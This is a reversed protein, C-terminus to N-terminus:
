FFVQTSLPRYFAISQDTKFFSFFNLFEGINNIQAVRLHFWDDGSFFNGVVPLFIIICFGIIVFLLNAKLYKGINKM